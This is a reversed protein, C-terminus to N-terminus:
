PDKLAFKAGLENLKSLLEDVGAEGIKLVIRQKNLVADTASKAESLSYGLHSKLLKAFEVKQFGGEWGFVEVTQSPGCEPRPVGDLHITLGQASIVIERYDPWMFLRMTVAARSEFPAPILSELLDSGVTLSGDLIPDPLDGLAGEVEGRDFEFVADVAM